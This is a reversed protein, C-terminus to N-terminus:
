IGSTIQQKIAHWNEGPLVQTGQKTVADLADPSLGLSQLLTPAVQTTTVLNSNLKGTSALSPNSILLAVHTDDDDYGGHEAKKTDGLKSYIVGKRPLVILDPTRTDTDPSPLSLSAGHLVQSIGLHERNRMLAEAVQVTKSQNRLWILASRDAAMFALTGPAVQEVARSLAKEDVHHLMKPNVPGNGHKATVILLTSDLLNQERLAAVIQGIQKDSNAMAAALEPTPRGFKAQYGALKQAVSVSQLNLGFLMPVPASIKGDHKFGHIQNILADVKSQDYRETGAISATIKDSLKGAGAEPNSGIEPTYLDEVGLGSPGNAIEYVPHKDIWATHGGAQRVVEFVTNVRLYSHPYVPKCEKGGRPLLSAQLVPKGIEAGPVDVSEDYIVPTGLQQCHSGPSFLHRDYSVDFYVGTVAPTGGTILGMLGPFSDAPGAVHAQTYTIGTRKLGALASNPHSTSFNQLDLAHLGDVSILLVHKIASVKTDTQAAVPNVFSVALM